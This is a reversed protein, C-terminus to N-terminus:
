TWTPPVDHTPLLAFHRDADVCRGYWSMGNALERVAFCKRPWAQNAEEAFTGRVFAGTGIASLGRYRINITVKAYTSIRRACVKYLGARM